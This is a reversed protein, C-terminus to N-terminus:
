GGALLCCHLVLLAVLFIGALWIYTHYNDYFTVFSSVSTDVETIVEALKHLATSNDPMGSHPNKYM